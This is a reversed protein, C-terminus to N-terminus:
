SGEDPLGRRHQAGDLIVGLGASFEANFDRGSPGLVGLREMQARTQEEITLGIVLQTIATSVAWADNVDLGGDAAIEAIRNAVTKSALGSAWSSSVIEASDPVSLLAARMAVAVASLRGSWPDESDPASSTADDVGDLIDEALAALLTQKNPFHWYLANPRVGVETALRRMSLDALSHSALIERAARLVDSRTNSM